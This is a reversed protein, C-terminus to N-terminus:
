VADKRNVINKYSENIESRLPKWVGYYLAVCFMLVAIGAWTLAITSAPILPTFQQAFAGVDNLVEGRAADSYRMLIRLDLVAELAVTVAIVNLVLQTILGHVRLGLGIMLMGFGVGLFLAWPVGSEDPIAFLLSFVVMGLGILIAIGNTFRPFRNILYFMVSGFFAAGVYGAPLILWRAGGVTTAVGSGNASVAFGVVEGGTLIAALSHGAEHIFTTFLRLPYLIMDLQPTNWLIYVAVLAIATIFLAPRRYNKPKAQALAAKRTRRQQKELEAELQARRDM